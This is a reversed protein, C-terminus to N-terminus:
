RLKLEVKDAEGEGETRLCSMKSVSHLRRLFGSWAISRNSKFLAWRRDVLKPVETHTYRTKCLCVLKVRRSEIDNCAVYATRMCAKACCIRIAFRLKNVIGFPIVNGSEVSQITAALRDVVMGEKEKLAWLGMDVMARIFRVVEVCLHKAMIPKPLLTVLVAPSNASM